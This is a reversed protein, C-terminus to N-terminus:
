SHCQMKDFDAVVSVGEGMEQGRGEGMEKGKGRGWKKGRGRGWKKGRGRGTGRLPKELHRRTKRELEVGGGEFDDKWLDSTMPDSTM